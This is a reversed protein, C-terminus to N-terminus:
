AAQRAPYVGSGFCVVACFGASLLISLPVRAVQGGAFTATLYALVGGFVLGLRAGAICIVTAQRLFQAIVERHRAGLARLLGLVASQHSALTSNDRM